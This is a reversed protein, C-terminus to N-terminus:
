NLRTSTGMSKVSEASAGVGVNAAAAFHTQNVDSSRRMLIFRRSASISISMVFTLFKGRTQFCEDRFRCCATSDRRLSFHYFMVFRSRGNALSRIPKIGIEDAHPRSAPGTELFRDESRNRLFHNGLAFASGEDQSAVLSPLAGLYHLIFWDFTSRSIFITQPEYNWGFSTHQPDYAFRGEVATFLIM